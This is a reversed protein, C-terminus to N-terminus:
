TVGPELQMTSSSIAMAFWRRVEALLGLIAALRLQRYAWFHM